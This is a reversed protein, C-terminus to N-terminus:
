ITSRKCARAGILWPMVAFIVLMVVYVLEAVPDRGQLYESISIGRLGLVVTFETILMFTLALCGSYLYERSHAAKYRRTVFRAALYIAVLMLPAELIEAWRPGARPVVWLVRITGLGFGAALVLCFYVVGRIM